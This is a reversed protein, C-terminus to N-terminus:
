KLAADIMALYGARWMAKSPESMATIAARAQMRKVARFEEVCDSWKMPVSAPDARWIAEAVREVMESM